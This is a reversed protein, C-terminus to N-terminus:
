KMIVFERSRPELFREAFKTLILLRFIASALFSVVPMVVVGVSRISFFVLAGLLAWIGQQWESSLESFKRMTGDYLIDVLADGVRIQGGLYVSLQKRLEQIGSDILVTKQAENLLEAGPTNALQERVVARAADTFTNALTIGPYIYGLVSNAPLMFQGFAERSIITGNVMAGGIYVIAIFLSIGSLASRVGHAAVKTIKVKVREEVEEKAARAGNAFLVFASFFAAALWMLGLGYFAAGMALAELFVILYLRSHGKVLVAQLVFVTLYALAFCVGAIGSWWVGGALFERSFYSMAFAFGAGLLGILAIKGFSKDVEAESSITQMEM